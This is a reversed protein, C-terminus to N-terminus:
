LKIKGVNFLYNYLMLDTSQISKRVGVHISTKLYDPVLYM